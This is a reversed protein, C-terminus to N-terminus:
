MALGGDVNIVQGTIYRSHESALFLATEAVEEPSGIRGFPIQSQLAEKASENINDTMDTGIYGPAIVNVRVSRSAVERAFSKSFGIVGAKSAAYNCQGANGIEGVISAINIVSGGRNKIMHRALFRCTLFTSTLNTDIVDQWDKTSMRMILGDRTIGANNVLIDVKDCEDIISEIAAKLKEEDTVSSEKWYVKAGSAAAATELEAHNEAQRRSLYYVSAGQKLFTSVIANGIGRSGGTILATKDKLM